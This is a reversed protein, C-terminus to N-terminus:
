LPLTCVPTPTALPKGTPTLAGSAQDVAFSTVTGSNQNSSFLFRGSPDLGIHRPWKGGCSPSGTLKLKGDGGVAFISVTDSGRNSVYVFRGDASVLIEAPYNRVGPVPVAIAPVEDIPTLLGDAYGCTIVTSGLETAVYAFRGNPHFALHRPGSGARLKVQHRLALKGTGLNLEYAYVSDTGLDVAHVYRGAPDPLVQHAHPSSQRDPDPGSGKHRVLDSRAGLGGDARVPHVAVSGSDYNASVVYKGSPHVCLHTPGAGGSSQSNITKLKTGSVSLATVQGDSQENVVYLRQGNPSLALFSPNAVPLVQTGSVQGTAPDWSALGIGKGANAGDTYTGVFLPRTARPGAQAPTDMLVAGTLGVGAAGLLSLGLFGRRDLGAM